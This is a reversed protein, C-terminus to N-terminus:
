MQFPTYRTFPASYYYKSLWINGLLSVGCCVFSECMCKGVEQYGKVAYFYLALVSRDIILLITFHRRCLWRSWLSKRRFVYIIFCGWSMRHPFVVLLVRLAPFGLCKTSPHIERLYWIGGAGLPLLRRVRVPGIDDRRCKEDYGDCIADPYPM